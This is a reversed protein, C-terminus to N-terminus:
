HSRLATAVLMTTADSPAVGLEEALLRKCEEYARAAAARDGAAVHARILLRHASERFPDTRIAETADRSALAPDGRAIWVEGLCELARLRIDALRARLLELWEGEEGALLPRSAVARAILAGSGAASVDGAGLATEAAHIAGAAADLDLWTGAPLHMAYTGSGGILTGPAGVRVLAGRLKSVLARLAVDWAAPWETDWLDDALEVTPVPEHIAALRVLLRRAQRGPLDRETVTVGDAGRLAIGGALYV